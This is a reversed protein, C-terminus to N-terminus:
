LNYLIDVGTVPLCPGKLENTESITNDKLTFVRVITDDGGTVLVNQRLVCQNLSAEKDSFDAQVKLLLSLKGSGSDVKYVAVQETLCAALLSNNDRATQLFNAVAKETSEEHVLNTAQLLEEGLAPVKYVQIKNAIEYGGGGGLYIYNGVIEM